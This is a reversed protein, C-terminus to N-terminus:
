KEKVYVKSIAEVIEKARNDYSRITGKSLGTAESLLSLLHKSQEGKLKGANKYTLYILKQKESLGSLAHTLLEYADRLKGISPIGNQFADMEEIEHVLGYHNYKDYGRLGTRERYIDILSFKAIQFLYLKVCLDVDKTKCKAINFKNLNIFKSFTKELLELAVSSDYRYRSCLIECKQSLDKSFRGYFIGFARKGAEETEADGQGKWSIYEILELTSITDPKSWDLM